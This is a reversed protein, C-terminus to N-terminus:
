SWHIYLPYKVSSPSQVRKQELGRRVAAGSRTGQLRQKGFTSYFGEMNFGVRNGRSGDSYFYRSYRFRLNESAVRYCILPPPTDVEHSQAVCKLSILILFSITGTKEDSSVKRPTRLTTGVM